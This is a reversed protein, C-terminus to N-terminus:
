VSVEDSRGQRRELFWLIYGIVGVLCIMAFVWFLKQHEDTVDWRERLIRVGNVWLFGSCVLFIAVLSKMSIIMWSADDVPGDQFRISAYVLILIGAPLSGLGAVFFYKSYRKM